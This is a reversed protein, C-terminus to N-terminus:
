TDDFLVEEITQKFLEEFLEINNDLLSYINSNTMSMSLMIQTFLPTFSNKKNTINTLKDIALHLEYENMTGKKLLAFMGRFYDNMTNLITDDYLKIDLPDNVLINILPIYNNIENSEEMFVLDIIKLITSKLTPTLKVVMGFDIIGLKLENDIKMYIVNGPHLDTHVYQSILYQEIVYKMFYKAYILKDDCNITNDFSFKGDLFDMIIFNTNKLCDEVKNYCIPIITQSSLSSKSNIGANLRLMDIEQDFDCQSLLYEGSDQISKFAYIFDFHYIMTLLNYLFVINNFGFTMKEKIKLKKIKIIVKKNNMKGTYILSIM